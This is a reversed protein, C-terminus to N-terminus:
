RKKKIELAEWARFIGKNIPFTQWKKPQAPRENTFNSAHSGVFGLELLNQGKNKM